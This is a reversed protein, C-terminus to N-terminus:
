SIRELTILREGYESILYKLQTVEADDPLLESPIAKTGGYVGLLNGTISGTSDSDGSHNVSLMLTEKSSLSHQQGVLFCYIAIAVAEEAVWGQGISEVAEASPKESIKEMVKEILPNLTEDPFDNKTDIVAQEPSGGRLLRAILVAAFGSCHQAVEHGHTIAADNCGSDYIEKIVADDLSTNYAGLCIGIPSARM